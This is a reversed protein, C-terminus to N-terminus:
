GHRPRREAISRYLQVHRDACEDWSPLDLREPVYPRELQDLVAAAVDGPGSAHPISRVLGREALEALGTTHTVLVPLRLALAELVAVPQTEQDSLLVVLAAKRLETAMEDPRDAPIARIEVRDAVGRREAIQRLEREYPGSGAIWVHAGPHSKLVEPLAEILRHHGKYRELRGVSVILSGNDTAAPPRAPEPPLDTGIPILEFRERPVQLLRGYVEIEFRAIAVLRDARALLPRLATWQPRRLARRVHSSHGGGHFTVVYPTRSRRAALMSLPAVLTHYSQVHVIDWANRVITRYVDPAFYYDRGRPWAPVRVIQLGDGNERAPLTGTSDTTLLTVSLGRDVLRRGLVDVYREVGGMHPLYLPTAMLVRLARM